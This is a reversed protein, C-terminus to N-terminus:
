LKLKKLAGIIAGATYWPAKVLDLSLGIMGIKIWGLPLLYNLSIKRKLPLYLGRYIISALTLGGIYMKTIHPVYLVADEVWGAIASNWNFVALTVFILVILKLARSFLTESMNKFFLYHALQYALLLIVIGILYIKTIHPIFLPNTEWGNILYNWKPLIVATLVLLLSLYADKINRLINLRATHYASKMYKKLTIVLTKPLDRYTVIPEIPLHINLNKKMLRERWEIDEGMRVHEFFGESDIFVKKKILTGPVSQHGIKGYTAARLLKQFPLTAEFQTVGFVADAHYARMLHDYRELWEKDPVTKSDLFAIWEGSAFKVGCNRAKGPYSKREYHYIIPITSEYKEIFEKILNNTSSDVIITELPLLSQDKVADLITKLSKGDNRTPIM